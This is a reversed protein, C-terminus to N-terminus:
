RPNVRLRFTVNSVDTAIVPSGLYFDSQFLYNIRRAAMLDASVDASALRKGGRLGAFYTVDHRNNRAGEQRYLADNETRTRGTFAGIQWASRLWDAALFQASSGPGIAAGLVQGRQTLGQIAARGTYYDMPPRDPWVATQELYTVEGQLRLRTPRPGTTWQMGLVYAQTSQPALAFERLSRPLETRAWEGYAEVGSEPFIWRAFLSSIQDTRQRLQGNGQTDQQSRVPEWRKLVDFTHDFISANTGLPAVVLRSLGVTLNSDASPHAILLIGSVSRLDNSSDSDFYPSETLGGIFARGEFAGVSTHLPRATRLFLRPIGGANNSLVLTNRVGPGWWENATSGGVAVAGRSLTFASQGFGVTGM